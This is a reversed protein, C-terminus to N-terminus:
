VSISYENKDDKLLNVLARQFSPYKSTRIALLNGVRDKLSFNRKPIRSKKFDTELFKMFYRCVEKDFM